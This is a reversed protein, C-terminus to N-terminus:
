RDGICVNSNKELDIACYLNSYDFSQLHKTCLKDGNIIKLMTKQLKRKKDPEHYSNYPDSRGWGSVIGVSDPVINPMPLCIPWVYKSKVIKKNLKILAIDYNPDKQNYNEHLIIKSVTYTSSYETSENLYHLGLVVVFNAPETM